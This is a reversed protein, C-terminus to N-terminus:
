IAPFDAGSDPFKNSNKIFRVVEDNLTHISEHVPKYGWQQAFHNCSFYNKKSISMNRDDATHVVEVKLGFHQSFFNLLEFKTIPNLSYTDLACNGPEALLLCRILSFVDHPGVYDRYIDLSDTRIPHKMQLADMVSSMLYSAKPDQTASFYSFLRVDFISLSPKSRHRREARLKAQSYWMERVTCETENLLPSNAQIPQEFGGAYVAGSSFFVYKCDPERELYEMVQIDFYDSITVIEKALARTQSPDGRGILNIVADYKEQGFFATPRCAKVQTLNVAALWANVSSCSRAFLSLQASPWQDSFTCILDRGIQSSSGLIAIHM